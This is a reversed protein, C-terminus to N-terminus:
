KNFWEVYCAGDVLHKRLESPPICPRGHPDPIENKDADLFVGCGDYDIFGGTDVIEDFEPLTYIDRDSM